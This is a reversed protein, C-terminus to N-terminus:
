RLVNPSTVSGVMAARVAELAVPDGATVIPEPYCFSRADRFSRTSWRGRADVAHLALKTGIGGCSRETVPVVADALSLLADRQAAPVVEDVQAWRGQVCLFGRLRASPVDLALNMDKSDAHCRAPPANGLSVVIVAPRAGTLDDETVDEAGDAGPSACASCLGCLAVAAVLGAFRALHHPM